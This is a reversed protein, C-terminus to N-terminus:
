SIWLVCVCLRVENSLVPSNNDDDDIICVCDWKTQRHVVVDNISDDNCWRDGAYETRCSMIDTVRTAGVRTATVRTAVRAAVPPPMLLWLISLLLLLLISLVVQPPVTPNTLLVEDLTALSYNDDDKDDDNDEDNDGYINNHHILSHRRPYTSRLSVTITKTMTSRLSVTSKGWISTTLITSQWMIGSISLAWWWSSDLPPTMSIEVRMKQGSSTM